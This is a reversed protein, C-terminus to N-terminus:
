FLFLGGQFLIQSVVWGDLFCASVAVPTSLPFDIKGPIDFHWWQRSKERINRTADQATQGINLEYHLHDVLAASLSQLFPDFGVLHLSLNVIQM